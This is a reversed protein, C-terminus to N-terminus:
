KTASYTELLLCPAFQCPWDALPNLGGCKVVIAGFPERIARALMCPTATYAKLIYM